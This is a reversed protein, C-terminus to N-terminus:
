ARRSDFALAVLSVHVVLGLDAWSRPVLACRPSRWNRGPAPPVALFHPEPGLAQLPGKLKSLALCIFKPHPDHSGAPFAGAILNGRALGCCVLKWLSPDICFYPRDAASGARGCSTATAGNSFLRTACLPPPLM